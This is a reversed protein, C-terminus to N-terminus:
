SSVNSFVHMVLTTACDSCQHQWFCAVTASDDHSASYMATLAAVCPAM